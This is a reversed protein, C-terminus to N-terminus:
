VHKLIHNKTKSIINDFIVLKEEKDFINEMSKPLEPLNGTANKIVEGFKAPHACALSVIPFENNISDLIKLGTIVGAAVGM